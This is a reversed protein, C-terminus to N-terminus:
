ALTRVSNEREWPRTEAAAIFDQTTSIDIVGANSPVNAAKLLAAGGQDVGIAKLHDFADRVFDIAASEEGLQKAGADSLIVAVADFIM